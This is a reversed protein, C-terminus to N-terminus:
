LRATGLSPVATENTSWQTAGIPMANNSAVALSWWNIVTRGRSSVSGVNNGLNVREGYNSKIALANHIWM